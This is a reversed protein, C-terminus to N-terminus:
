FSSIFLFCTFSLHVKTKDYCFNKGRVRFNNGDSITWCDRATDRGDHRLNGSFCSLDIQEAVEEEAALIMFIKM